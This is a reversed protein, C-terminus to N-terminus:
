KDMSEAVNDELFIQAIRKPLNSFEGVSFPGFKEGEPSKFENVEELFVVLMNEKEEDEKGGNLINNVKKDAEEISKIFEDFLEKEILLMNSFDQKSIGTESAILALTLIKKRRRRLLEQFLTVANELQKKTKLIVDSFVDGEKSAATKKEEIYKSVEKVFNKQIPQLKESYREKKAAEYIDKYTIM